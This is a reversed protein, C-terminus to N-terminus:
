MKPTTPRPKRARHVPAPGPLLHAEADAPEHGGRHRGSSHEAARKLLAKTSDRADISHTHTARRTM